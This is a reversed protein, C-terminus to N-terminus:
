WLGVANSFGILSEPIFSKFDSPVSFTNGLYKFRARTLAPCEGVVHDVTEDEECCSRCEPNDAIGIAHLHSRLHWHGTLLGTVLRIERRKLRLLNKTLCASPGGIHAKAQRMGPSETWRRHTWKDLLDKMSAVAVCKAIDVIPEPGMPVNASGLRALSDAQENGAHGAHGPIWVLQVRCGVQVLKKLVKICELVLKSSVKAATIAKIAARSDSCISVVTNRHGCSLIKQGCKLVAFVEAQFVTAHEGLSYARSTHPIGGILGSGARSNMRSGDTYWITGRNLLAPRNSHQWVERGAIHTVFGECDVTVPAMCDSGMLLLPCEQIARSWIKAHGTEGARLEGLVYLRYATRMAEFQVVLDLPPLSLLTELATTPATRMSGTISLCALRQIRDLQARIKAKETCPWWVIAGYTLLPRVIHSYIWHLIKPSLGCTNGFARRCAWLACTAKKM